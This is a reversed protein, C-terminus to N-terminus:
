NVAALKFNIAHEIRMALSIIIFHLSISECIPIRKLDNNSNNRIACRELNKLNQM